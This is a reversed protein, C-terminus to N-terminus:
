DDDGPVDKLQLRPDDVQTTVLDEYIARLAADAREVAAHEPTGPRLQKELQEARRWAAVIEAVLTQM